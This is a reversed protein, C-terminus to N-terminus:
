IRDGTPGFRNFRDVCFKTPNIIDDLGRFNGTKTHLFAVYYVYVTVGLYSQMTIGILKTPLAAQLQSRM